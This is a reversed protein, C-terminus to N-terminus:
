YSAGITNDKRGKIRGTKVLGDYQRMLLHGEIQQLTDLIVGVMILLSSGGFYVAFSDSVGLLIRAFAPLIAILGLFIAGPLTIRTIVMDIFEATKRGPKVGPIFANQRKLYDAQQQPNVILATYVYTFVVILLLYIINYAFSKYDQLANLFPSNRAGAATMAAAPLFMIAQAFIIPMVGSANVKVPLYDRAGTIPEDVSVRGVMRKAFQIPIKRVAQILVITAMLIAALIALEVVFLFLGGQGGIRTELEGIFAQPLYAIIGIMIILSSGNGLGKDTIKEGLWMCFVTGATLILTNGVWFVPSTFDGTLTVSSGLGSQVYGLFASSQVIAVLVTLMRTIQNMKRTGSEGEKQMKQFQPVGFGL